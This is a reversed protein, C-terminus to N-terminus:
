QFETDYMKQHLCDDEEPERPRTTEPAEWEPNGTNASAKPAVYRLLHSPFMVAAKAPRSSLGSRHRPDGYPNTSRGDASADAARGNATESTARRASVAPKRHLRGVTAIRCFSPNIRGCMIHHLSIQVQRSSTTILAEVYWHQTCQVTRHLTVAM